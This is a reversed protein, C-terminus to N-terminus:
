VWPHNIYHDIFAGVGHGSRFSHRYAYRARRRVWYVHDGMSRRWWAKLRHKIDHVPTLYMHYVDAADCSIRLWMWQIYRHDRGENVYVTFGRTFRVTSAWFRPAQVEVSEVKAHCALKYMLKSLVSYIPSTINFLVWNRIYITNM